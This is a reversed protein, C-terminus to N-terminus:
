KKKTISSKNNKYTTTFQEIILNINESHFLNKFEKITLTNRYLEKKHWTDVFTLTKNNENYSYNRHMM